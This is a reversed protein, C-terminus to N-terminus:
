RRIKPCGKNILVFLIYNYLNEKGDRKNKQYNKLRCNRNTLRSKGDGPIETQTKKKQIKITKISSYIKTQEGGKKQGGRRSEKM